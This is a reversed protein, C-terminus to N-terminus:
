KVWDPPEGIPTGDAFTPYDDEPGLKPVHIPDTNPKPFENVNSYQREFILCCDAFTEMAEKCRTDFDEPTLYTPVHAAIIDAIYKGWMTMPGIDNGEKTSITRGTAEPPRQPTNPTNEELKFWKVTHNTYQGDVKVEFEMAKISMGVVPNPVGSKEFWTFYRDDGDVKFSWIQWPRPNGDRDNSVGGKGKKVWSITAGVVMDKEAM